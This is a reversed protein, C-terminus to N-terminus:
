YIHSDWNFARTSSLNYQKVNKFFISTYCNADLIIDDQKLVTNYLGSYQKLGTDSTVQYESRTKQAFAVFVLALFARRYTFKVQFLMYGLAVRRSVVSKQVNSM